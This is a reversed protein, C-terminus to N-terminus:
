AKAMHESNAKIKALKEVDVKAWKKRTRAIFIRGILIPTLLTVWFVIPLGLLPMSKNQMFGERVVVQFLTATILAIFSGGQTSIHWALWNKPRFKATLYGILAFAYSPPALYTFVTARGYQYSIVLASICIVLMFWHYLEGLMTHSPSFKRVRFAAIGILIALIGVVPHIVLMASM